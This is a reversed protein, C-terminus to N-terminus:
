GSAESGGHIWGPPYLGRCIPVKQEYKDRSGCARMRATLAEHYKATPTMAPVDAQM